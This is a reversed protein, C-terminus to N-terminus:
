TMSYSLSYKQISYLNLRLIYASTFIYFGGKKETAGQDHKLLGSGM